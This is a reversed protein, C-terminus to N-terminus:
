DEAAIRARRISAAAKEIHADADAAYTKVSSTDQRGMAQTLQKIGTTLDAIALRLYGNVENVKPDGWAEPPKGPSERRRGGPGSLLRIVDNRVKEHTTFEDLLETGNNPGAEYIGLLIHETGIYNHGLSLATRLAREMCKKTGADLTIVGEAPDKSAPEDALFRAQAREYTIDQSELVRAALGEEERLIGLVIHAPSTHHHGHIAAEEQAEQVIIRARPTFPQLSRDSTFEGM